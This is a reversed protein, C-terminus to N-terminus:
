DLKLSDPVEHLLDELDLAGEVGAEVTGALRGGRRQHARRRVAYEEPSLDLNPERAEGLQVFIKELFPVCWGCGTGAGHCEAFQSALRPRRRVYFHRLKHLSVHFCLCVERHAADM